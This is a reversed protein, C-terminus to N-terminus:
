KADRGQKAANWAHIAKNAEEDADWFREKQRHIAWVLWDGAKRLREVEAKLEGIQLLQVAQQGLSLNLERCRQELEAKLDHIEEKTEAYDGIIKWAPSDTLTCPREARWDLWQQFAEKQGNWKLFSKHFEVEAELAAYDTYLVFEGNQTPDPLCEDGAAQYTVDYIERRGYRKPESM